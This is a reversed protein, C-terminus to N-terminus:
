NHLKRDGLNISMREIGTKGPIAMVARKTMKLVIDHLIVEEDQM